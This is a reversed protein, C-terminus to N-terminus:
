EVPKWWKRKYAMFNLSLVCTMQTQSMHCVRFWCIKSSILGEERQSAAKRQAAIFSDLERMVPEISLECSSRRPRLDKPMAQLGLRGVWIDCTEQCRGGRAPYLDVRIAARMALRFWRWISANKTVQSSKTMSAERLLKSHSKCKLSLQYCCHRGDFNDKGFTPVSNPQLWIGYIDNRKEFRM